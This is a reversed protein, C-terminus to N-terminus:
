RYLNQLVALQGDDAIQLRWLEVRGYDSGIVGM